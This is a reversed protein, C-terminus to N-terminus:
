TREIVLHPAGFPPTLVCVRTAGFQALDLEVVASAAGARARVEDLDDTLVVLGLLGRRPAVSHGLLSGGQDAPLGYDVINVYTQQRSPGVTSSRVRFEADVGMLESFSADVFDYEYVIGWGFVDAYWEITPAADSLPLSISVPESAIRDRVEAFDTFFDAPGHLFATVVGDPGAHHAERFSGDSTEYSAEKTHMTFGAGNAHAVAADFDPAYFDIVRFADRHIRTEADRVTQAAEPASSDFRCLVAGAEVGPTRLLVLESACDAGFLAGTQASVLGASGTEAMGFAGVLLDAHPASASVSLL